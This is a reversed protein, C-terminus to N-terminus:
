PREPPSPKSLRKLCEPSMSDLLRAKAARNAEARWAAIFRSCHERLVREQRQHREERQERTLLLWDSSPM